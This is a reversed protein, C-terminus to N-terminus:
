GHKGIQILNPVKAPNVIRWCDIVTAETQLDAFEPWPTMILVVKAGDICEAMSSAQINPAFATAKAQPDYVSIPVSRKALIDAVAVGASEETVSTNPKFALGLVAVKGTGGCAVIAMEALRGAQRQNIEDAAAPISAEIGAMIAMHCFARDDRPLCAGGYAAGPSLYKMGIRSDLGIAQTVVAADGGPFQECIEALMNGYSIKTTLYSNLAIKTIEANIYNMRAIPPNNECLQKYFLALQNGSSERTASIFRFDPDLALRNEVNYGPSEGILVFDPNLMDHIISGLAIFEPNYSLSFGARNKKGSAEEMAPVIANDMTGPSVTSVVVISRIRDNLRLAKGIVEIAEVVYQPSFDGAPLSPTPVIIFIIESALVAEAGDLTASIRSHNARILEALGTEEVPAEGRNLADVNAQNVDVGIVNFGRSAAVAAM